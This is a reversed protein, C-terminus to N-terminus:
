DIVLKEGTKLAQQVVSVVFDTKAAEQLSPLSTANPWDGGTKVLELFYAVSEYGYGDYKVTGLPDSTACFFYPNIEAVGDDKWIHVGRRTQDLEVLGREFQVKLTQLSKTPSGTPNFWGVNMPCVIPGQDTEFKLTALVGDYQGTKKHVEGVLPEAAASVLRAEPFMFFLQDVYHCGIYTFVDVDATWDFVEMPLTRPQHYDVSYALLRGLEQDEVQKKLLRNSVDFRKHYDVWTRAGTEKLLVVLEDSEKWNGTLPKVIWVPVNAACASKIYPAHFKDPVSIFCADMSGSALLKEADASVVFEISLSGFAGLEKLIKEVDEQKKKLLSSSNYTISISSNEDNANQLLWQIVSRLIVGPGYIDGIVYSGSGIVLINM